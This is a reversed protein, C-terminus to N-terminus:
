SALDLAVMFTGGHLHAVARAVFEAAQLATPQGGDFSSGPYGFIWSPRKGHEPMGAWYLALAVYGDGSYMSVRDVAYARCAQVAAEVRDAPLTVLAHLSM